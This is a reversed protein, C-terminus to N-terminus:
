KTMQVSGVVSVSLTGKGPDMPLPPASSISSTAAMARAEVFPMGGAEASSVNVERVNFGGYGFQRAYDAAKARFRAIADAALEGEAKARLERSLGHSVRAVTMTEIRGALQAIAATDKGEITLETTGIWGALTANGKATPSGYRPSLSFNGTQVELQGPQAVRRAQALAAELAQKLQAQVAAADTGDRTTSLVVTVLDRAVEVTATSSLNMVDQLKGDAAQALASSATVLALAFAALSRAPM